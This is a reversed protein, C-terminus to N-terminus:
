ACTGLVGPFRSCYGPFRMWGQLSTTEPFKFNNVIIKCRPQIRSPQLDCRRLFGLRNRSISRFPAPNGIYTYGPGTAVWHFKLIQYGTTKKLNLFIKLGQFHKTFIYISNNCLTRKKKPLIYM